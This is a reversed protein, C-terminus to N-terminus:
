IRIAVERIRDDMRLNVELEVSSLNRIQTSQVDVCTDPPIIFTAVTTKPETTMEEDPLLLKWKPELKIKSGEEDYKLLGQKSLFKSFELLQSSGLGLQDSLEDVRHWDGNKITSFFKEITLFLGRAYLQPFNYKLRPSCTASLARGPIETNMSESKRSFRARIIQVKPRFKDDIGKM